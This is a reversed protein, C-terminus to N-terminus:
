HVRERQLILLLEKLKMVQKYVVLILPPPAQLLQQGLSQRVM